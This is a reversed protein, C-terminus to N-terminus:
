ITTASLLTNGQLNHSGMIGHIEVLLSGDEKISDVNGGTTRVIDPLEGLVREMKPLLITANSNGTSVIANAEQVSDPLSESMGDVGADENTIIVTKIGAQELGQCTQMLDTTPNGFGEQSIIAGEAGLSQVAQVTLMTNRYKEKLTVMLPDLVVGLFNLEKGHRALLSKIVANNLHHYTTTKSGPSVCNGSVVAGDMFELPSLIAPVLAKCDRGYFYTDHLLGQAMCNCVYVVKPLEPYMAYRQGIPPWDYVESEYEDCTLALKGIAHAVKIGALRVTEEHDHPDVGEAKVIHMVIHNLQSFISYQAGPGSMDILGEQFGVIPGTSTVACGKLVYTIGTGVAEMTERFLGPFAEGGELKARPEIVDKVPLIRCSEGPKALDFRVSQVRRDELVLQTLVEPDVTLVGDCVGQEKGFRVDRIAVSRLEYSM